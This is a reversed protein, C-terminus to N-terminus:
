QKRGPGAMIERVAMEKRIAVAVEQPNMNSGNLTVNINYLANSNPMKANPNYPNMNAPIVAEGKHLQAITDGYLYKVGTKYSPMSMNSSYSPNVYGGDAFGSPWLNKIKTLSTAAAGFMQGYVQGPLSYISPLVDLLDKGGLLQPFEMSGQANSNRVAGEGLFNRLESIKKDIGFMPLEEGIKAKGTLASYLAAVHPNTSFYTSLDREGTRWAGSATSKVGKFLKIVEDPLLGYFEKAYYENFKTVDSFNIKPYKKKLLMERQAQVIEWATAGPSEGRKLSELSVNASGPNFSVGTSPIKISSLDMESLAQMAKADIDSMQFSKMEPTLNSILKAGTAGVRAGQGLGVFNLPLLAANLADGKQGMGALKRLLAATGFMEAAPHGTINKALKQLLGPKGKVMGGDKMTLMGGFGIGGGFLGEFPVSGMMGIPDKAISLGSGGRYPKPPQEQMQHEYDSHNPRNGTFKLGPIETGGWIDRGYALGHIDRVLEGWRPGYPSGTPKGKKSYPHVVGGHKFKKANIAEMTDVGYHDVASARVVYEGDSLYAPISDSTATGPGSVEGGRYMKSRDKVPSGLVNSKSDFNYVVGNIPDAAYTKGKYIFVSYKRTPDNPLTFKKTESDKMVLAKNVAENGSGATITAIPTKNTYGAQSGGKERNSFNIFDQSISEALQKINVGGTILKAQDTLAKLDRDYISDIRSRDVKNTNKVDLGNPGYSVTTDSTVKQLPISKGTKDFLEPFAQRIYKADASSKTGSDQVEKSLADLQKTNQNLAKTDSEDILTREGLLIQYRTEFDKIKESAVGADESSYQANQMATNRKDNRSRIKDRDSILPEKEKKAADEIAQEALDMQRNSTLRQIDIQAQAAASMDGRAIADQYELQLKQLDLEYNQRDQTARLAELKANKEDEILQIKKELLKIEAEANQQSRAAARQATQSVAKQLKDLKQLATGITGFTNSVGGMKQLADTASSIASNWELLAIATESSMAKLNQTTGQVAIKWKAISGGVTDTTNLIDKLEEPLERFASGLEQDFGQMNGLKGIVMEMAKAEDIINGQADKTGILSKTAQESMNLLSSIGAVFKDGFQDGPNNLEDILSKFVHKTATTRDTVSRFGENAFVKLALNANESAAMMGYINKTAEEAPIGLGIMQAKLNNMVENINGADARNITEISEKFKEAAMTKLEELKQPDLSLGPVGVSASGVASAQMVAQATTIAKMRSVIDFYELGLEEAAKKTLGFRNVADQSWDGMKKKLLALAGVVAMIAAMPGIFKLATLTTVFIRTAANAGTMAGRTALVSNKLNTIGSIASPILMPAMSGGVMVGMGLGAQGQAMLASGAAMGAMSMGMHAGMGMQRRPVLGQRQAEKSSLAQRNGDNDILNYQTKRFGYYGQKRSELSRGDQLQQSQWPTLGIPGTIMNTRPQTIGADSYRKAAEQRLGAIFSSNNILNRPMSSMTTVYSKMGGIMSGMHSTFLKGGQGMQIAARKVDTGIAALHMPIQQMELVALKMRNTIPTMSQYAQQGMVALNAYMARIPNYFSTTGERTAARGLGTTLAQQGYVQHSSARSARKAEAAQRAQNKAAEQQARKAPTGSLGYATRKRTVKGGGIRGGRNFAPNAHIPQYKSWDVQLGDDLRQLMSIYPPKTEKPLSKIIEVLKPRFEKLTKQMMRGYKKPTMKAVIPATDRAFDKRAGGRVALLNIMAQKEMSNMSDALQTNGSAKAFVGANGVDPNSNRFVNSRSLDKNNLVLSLALQRIVQDETMPVFVKPPVLRPDYDSELALLKSKATPDLPNTVTRVTQVPSHVGMARAIATGIPEHTAVVSHPVGKVFVKKGRPGRYVGSVGPVPYSMGTNPLNSDDIRHGYSTAPMNAFQGLSSRSSLQKSTALIRLMKEPSLLPMPSGYSSKSRSVSGGPVLGGMNAAFRAVELNKGSLLPLMRSYRSMLTNGLSGKSKPSFLETIIQSWSLRGRGGKLSSLGRILEQKQIKSSPSMIDKAGPLKALVQNISSASATAQYAYQNAVVGRVKRYSQAEQAELPSGGLESKLLRELEGPAKFLSAQLEARMIHAKDISTTQGSLLRAREMLDVQSGDPRTAVGLGSRDLNSGFASRFDEGGFNSAAQTKLVPTYPVIKIRGNKNEAGIHARILSPYKKSLKILQVNRAKAYETTFDKKPDQLVRQSAYEIAEKHHRSAMDMAEGPPMGTLKSLMTANYAINNASDVQNFSPSNLHQAYASMMTADRGYNYTGRMIQGGFNYGNNAADVAAYLEPMQSIKPGYVIEGPTLAAVIEGGDSYSKIRGGSNYTSAIVDPHTILSNGSNMSAPQNLVYGGVPVRGLRDDYNISTDGSVVTRNPGFTEISGGDNFKPLRTTQISYPAGFTRVGRLRGFEEMVNRNAEKKYLDRLTFQANADVVPQNMLPAKTFDIMRGRSAAYTSIDRQLQAEMQANIAMIEARAQDVTMKGARLQAVILASQQAANDAISATMPLIDDFTQLLDSSVTGGLAITQKLAAVEAETQMALTAMLAQFKAAEGAVIGTSVGGVTTLGPVSPLRDNMFIQPNAGIKQNVPIAGPVGGLFTAPNNRDRPNIHSIARTNMAGAYADEPDVVRRLPSMMVGGGLSSSITPNVPIAGGMSAKQLNAYDTILKTLAGHLVEAAAADSYFAKEVMMAAKEAAIIEPTLMKWGAARQFFARLQVIGKTIYGFFNALVGTLMIIPGIVATFGGLYTVAKKIPEPLNNFFDLVKSFANIFKSAVGLFEEGVAALNARLGEIARRYKGSASETVLTLEKSAIGALQEASAGMLEMVQLTQSGSKGLNSLLASIRAFQFKGFMQEIARAKSLPDLQDLASQLDLLLDTTSGANREVMGLVDIGFDQLMGVTQKTPNILSALGSKLANASESANIGGERMATLYLALDKIDGGLAKVVPGAKPIATVLDNLTTSTQNEVANLFNISEALEETNQKFATQISLTAKMAEQRDVEGLVALRTTEAVASLLDNGTKGTAAIDAALAITSTFSVGMGSAIEKATAVVDKRIQQLDASATGSIDGYVKVLRTLEQDSERFAKAAQSGFISLPVTLGVTLQRGAWQTNKGWNILSTAGESLARNMIQMEVRALQASSRVADLGRPIMVNYQMLGQANRGLPQLVANQLMVQEKALERIMGKQTTFHTKFTSAYDKLKLRGADLNKGFKDVDSQLNVFHSSFLGSGTLTDRFLNNAVKTASAISKNSVLLERQLQQLSTTARHVESVLSSLDAKAVISTVIQEDAM